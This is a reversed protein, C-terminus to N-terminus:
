EQLDEPYDPNNQFITDPPYDLVIQWDDDTLGDSPSTTLRTMIATSPHLLLSTATDKEEKDDSKSDIFAYTFVYFHSPTLSLPSNTITNSINDTGDPNTTITNMSIKNGMTSTEPGAEKTNETNNSKDHSSSPTSYGATSDEITTPTIVLELNDNKSKKTTMSTSALTTDRKSRTM